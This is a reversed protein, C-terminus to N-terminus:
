LHKEQFEDCDRRAFHDNSASITGTTTKKRHFSYPAGKKLEHKKSTPAVCFICRLSFFTQITSTTFKLILIAHFEVNLVVSFYSIIHFSDM